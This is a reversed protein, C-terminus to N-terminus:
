YEYIGVQLDPNDLYAQEIEARTKVMEQGEERWTMETAKLRAELERWLKYEVTTPDSRCVGCLAMPESYPDDAPDGTNGPYKYHIELNGSRILCCDCEHIKNGDKPKTMEWRELRWVMGSM